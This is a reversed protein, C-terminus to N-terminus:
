RAEHDPAAATRQDGSSRSISSTRAPTPSSPTRRARRPLGARAQASRPRAGRVGRRHRERGRRLASALSPDFSLVDPSAGVSASGHGDDLAPRADAAERRRRVRRVRAPAARRGLLGHRPRLRARSAGSSGTRRPDIVAIEDRSQVDVLVHGSGADYQVNGAEGGLPITAIRRGRADIVTEVGGTEDSVFM